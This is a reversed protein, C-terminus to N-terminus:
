RNENMRLRMLLLANNHEEKLRKEIEKQMIYDEYKQKISTNIQKHSMDLWHHSQADLLSIREKPDKTLM